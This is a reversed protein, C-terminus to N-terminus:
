ASRGDRGKRTLVVNDIFAKNELFNLANVSEVASRFTKRDVGWLGCKELGVISASRPTDHLLALEGFGVGPELINVRQGNVLVELKGSLLVMFNKAPQGQEFLIDRPNIVYFKM